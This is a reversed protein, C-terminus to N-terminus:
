GFREEGRGSPRDPHIVPTVTGCEPCRGPTARLDYGCRPCLGRHSRWRRRAVYPVRLVPPVVFVVVLFWHPVLVFRVLAPAVGRRIRFANDIYLESPSSGSRFSGWRFGARSGFQSLAAGERGDVARTEWRWPEPQQPQDPTILAFYFGIPRNAIMLRRLESRRSLSDVRGRSRFWLSATAVCLLLSVATLLNLLRRKMRARPGAADYRM